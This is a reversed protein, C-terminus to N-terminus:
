RGTGGLTTLFIEYPRRDNRATLWRGDWTGAGFRADLQNRIARPTLDDDRPVTFTIVIQADSATVATIQINSFEPSRLLELAPLLNQLKPKGAALKNFQDSLEQIKANLTAIPDPSSAITPVVTAASALLEARRTQAAALRTELTDIGRRLRTAYLFVAAAAALIALAVWIHMRRDLRGARRTLPLLSQRPDDEGPAAAVKPSKRTIGKGAGKSPALLPSARLRNLTAGIPDAHVAADVTAGPWAAGLRQAFSAPTPPPEGAVPRHPITAPGICIVRDPTAGVQMSWSLWDMVLRGIDGESCEAAHITEPPEDPNARRAVVSLDAEAAEQPVTQPAPSISRVYTHTRLRMAGAALLDGARSWSWNLRGAPDVIVVATIPAAAEVVIPDHGNRDPAHHESTSRDRAPRSPAAPDWALAAAHWLSVVSGVGIKLRDLEDLLIRAPADAISLVGLRKRVSPAAPKRGLHFSFPEKAEPPALAQVSRASGIGLSDDPLLGFGAGAAAGAETPASPAGITAGAQRIAAVVVDPDSSPASVWSCVSGEADLCLAALERLPSLEDAIWAAAARISALQERAPAPSSADGSLKPASWSQDLEPGLLRVRRIGAGGPTREIHCVVGTLM